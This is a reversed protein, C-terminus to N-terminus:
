SDVGLTILMKDHDVIIGGLSLDGIDHGYIGYRDDGQDDAEYIEEYLKGIKGLLGALNLGNKGTKIKFRAPCDLPYDILLEYTKNPPLKEFNGGWRSSLMTVPIHVDVSQKNTKKKMQFVGSPRYM